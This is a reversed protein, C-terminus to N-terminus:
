EVCDTIPYDQHYVNCGLLYGHGGSCGEMPSMSEDAPVYEKYNNAGSPTEADCMPQLDDKDCSALIKNNSFVGKIRFIKATDKAGYFNQKSSDSSGKKFLVVVVRLFAYGRGSNNIIVEGAERLKFSPEFEEDRTLLRMEKIYVNTGKFQKGVEAFPTAGMDDSIRIESVSEGPALGIFTARCAEIDSITQRIINEVETVEAKMEMTKQAKLQNDTLQMMALALGGMLGVAVLVQVLSFGSQSYTM